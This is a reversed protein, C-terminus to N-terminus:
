RWADHLEGRTPQNSAAAERAWEWGSGAWGERDIQEALRRRGDRPFRSPESPGVEAQGGVPGLHQRDQGFGPLAGGTLPNFDGAGAAVPAGAGGQGTEGDKVTHRGGRGHREHTRMVIPMGDLREPLATIDGPPLPWCVLSFSSV